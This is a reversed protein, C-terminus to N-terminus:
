SVVSVCSASLRAALVPRVTGVCDCLGTAPWCATACSSAALRSSLGVPTVVVPVVSDDLDLASMRVPRSCFPNTVTSPVGAGALMATSTTGPPRAGCVPLWTSTPSAVCSFSALLAVTMAPAESDTPDPLTTLSSFLLALGTDVTSLASVSLPWIMTACASLYRSWPLVGAANPISEPLAGLGAGVGLAIALEADVPLPCGHGTMACPGTKEARGRGSQSVRHQLCSRRAAGRDPVAGVMATLRHREELARCDRDTGNRARERCAATRTIAKRQGDRSRAGGREAGIVVNGPVPDALAETPM